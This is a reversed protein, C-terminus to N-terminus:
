IGNRLPSKIRKTSSFSREESANSIPLTLFLKLATDANAFTDVIGLKHIKKLKETLSSEKEFISYAHLFEDVFSEELDCSYVKQFIKVNTYINQKDKEFM